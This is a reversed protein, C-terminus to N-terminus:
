IYSPDEKLAADIGTRWIDDVGTCDRVADMAIEMQFTSERMVELIARIADVRLEWASICPGTGGQSWIQQDPDVNAHKCVARAMKEIMTEIM